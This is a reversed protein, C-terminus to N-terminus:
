QPVNCCLIILLENPRMKSNQKSRYRLDSCTDTLWGMKGMVLLIIWVLSFRWLTMKRTQRVSKKNFEITRASLIKSVDIGRRSSGNDDNLTDGSANLDELSIGGSNNCTGTTAM